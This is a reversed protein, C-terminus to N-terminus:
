RLLKRSFPLVALGLGLLLLSTPEPVAAEYTLNDFTPDSFSNDVATIRVRDLGTFGVFNLAGFNLANVTTTAVLAAGLFGDFIIPDGQDSHVIDVSLLDFIGGTTLDYEDNGTPCCPVNWNGNGQVLSTSAATATITMGKETYSAVPGFSGDFTLTVPTAMATSAFGMSLAAPIVWRFLLKFTNM